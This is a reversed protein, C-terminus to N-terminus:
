RAGPAARRTEFRNAVNARWFRMVGLPTHLPEAERIADFGAEGVMHPFAGTVSDRTTEFGDLVQVALFAARSFPGTPMGWDAIVLRGAPKLVRRAERLVDRKETSRLHHFFLSSVVVDFKESAFPLHQALGRHLRMGSSARLFKGRAIALAEEDMDIGMIFASPAVAGIRMSLSGTGCGIDLVREGAELALLHVVRERWVSERTTVAIVRDYWATLAPFRLPALYAPRSSHSMFVKPQSSDVEVAGILSAM